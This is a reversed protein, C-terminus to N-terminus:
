LSLAHSLSFSLSLSLSLPPPPYLFQLDSVVVHVNTVNCIHTRTSWHLLLWLLGMCWWLLIQHPIKSMNREIAALSVLLVTYAVAAVLLWVWWPTRPVAVLVSLMLNVLIIILSTTLMTRIPRSLLMLISSRFDQFLVKQGRCLHTHPILRVHAFTIKFNNLFKRFNVSKRAWRRESLWASSGHLQTRQQSRGVTWCLSPSSELWCWM